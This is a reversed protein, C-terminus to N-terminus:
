TCEFYGENPVSLIVKMLYAGSIVKMMYAGSIVKM